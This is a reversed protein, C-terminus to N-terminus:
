SRRKRAHTTRANPSALRLAKEILAEQEPTLAASAKINATVDLKNGYKPHYARLLATIAPFHKDKMLSILQTEAMDCILAIGERMADDARSRFEADEDRWRYYTTHGVKSRSCAVEVIPMKRLHALLAEKAKARKEEITRERKENNM